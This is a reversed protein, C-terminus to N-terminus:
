SQNRCANATANNQYAEAIDCSKNLDQISSPLTPGIRLTKVGFIRLPTLTQVQHIRANDDQFIGTGVPFFFDMSPIVQDNLINLYDASRLRQACLTASALGSWSCCGWIM